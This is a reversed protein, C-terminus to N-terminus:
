DSFVVYCSLACYLLNPEIDADLTGANRTQGPTTVGQMPRFRMRQLALWIVAYSSGGYDFGIRILDRAELVNRHLRKKDAEIWSKLGHRDWSKPKILM